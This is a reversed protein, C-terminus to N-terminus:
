TIKGWKANFKPSATCSPKIWDGNSQGLSGASVEFGGQCRELFKPLGPGSAYLQIVWGPLFEGIKHRTPMVHPSRDYINWQLLLLPWSYQCKPINLMNKFTKSLNQHRHKQGVDHMCCHHHSGCDAITPKWQWTRHGYPEKWLIPHLTTKCWVGWNWPYLSLKQHVITYKRKLWALSEQAVWPARLMCSDFRKRHAHGFIQLNGSVHHSPQKCMSERHNRCTALWSIGHPCVWCCLGPPSKDLSLPRFRTM